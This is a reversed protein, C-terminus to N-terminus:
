NNISDKILKGIIECSVFDYFAGIPINYAQYMVRFCKRPNMKKNRKYMDSKVYSCYSPNWMTYKGEYLNGGIMVVKNYHYDNECADYIKIWKKEQEYLNDTEEIISFDFNDVGEIAIAIDVPLCSCHTKFRREINKSQGIYIQGTKKNEIKYIGSTM